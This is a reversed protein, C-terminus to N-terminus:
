SDCHKGGDSGGKSEAHNRFLLERRTYGSIFGKSMRSINDKSHCGPCHPCQQGQLANEISSRDKRCAHSRRHKEYPFFGDIMFCCSLSILVTIFLRFATGAKSIQQFVLPNKDKRRRNDEEVACVGCSQREHSFNERLSMM